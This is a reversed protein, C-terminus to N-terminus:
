KTLAPERTEIVIDDMILYYADKEDKEWHSNTPYITYDFDGILQITKSFYSQEPRILAKFNLMSFFDAIVLDDSGTKEKRCDFTINSLKVENKIKNM